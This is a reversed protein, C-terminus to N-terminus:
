IEVVYVCKFYRVSGGVVDCCSIYLLTLIKLVAKNLSCKSPKVKKWARHKLISYKCFFYEYWM